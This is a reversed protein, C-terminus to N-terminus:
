RSISTGVGAGRGETEGHKKKQQYSLVRMGESEGRIRWDCAFPSGAM